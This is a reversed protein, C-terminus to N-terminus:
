VMFALYCWIQACQLPDVQCSFQVVHELCAEGQIMADYKLTM